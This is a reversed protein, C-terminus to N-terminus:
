KAIIGLEEAKDLVPGDVNFDVLLVREFEGTEENKKWVRKTIFRIRNDGVTNDKDRIWGVVQGRKSPPIGFMAYATNLFTVSRGNLDSNALMLDNAIFEQTRIFSENYDMDAEWASAGMQPTLFNCKVYYRAYESAEDVNTVQITKKIKKKKGNEDVITEELIHDTTNLRIQEEAEAGWKDAVRGRYKRYSTDIASYAAAIAANEKNLLNHSHIICGYGLLGVGIAPLYLGVVEVTTKLYTKTVAKKDEPTKEHIADLTEKNKKFIGELKFSAVCAMVTSIVGGAIGVGVLIDSDNHKLSNTVSRGLKTVDNFVNFKM